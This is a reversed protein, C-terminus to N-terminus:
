KKYFCKKIMELLKKYWKEKTIKMIQNAENDNTKNVNYIETNKNDNEIKNPEIKNPEIKDPFKYYSDSYNDKKRREKEILIMKEKNKIVKREEETALYDTYLVSLIKETDELLNINDINEENIEFEYNKDINDKIGLIIDKPIKNKLENPLLEIIKYVETYAKKDIM